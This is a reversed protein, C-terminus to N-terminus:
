RSTTQVGTTTILVRQSAGTRRLTLAVEWTELQSEIRGVPTDNLFEFSVTLLLIPGNTRISWTHASKEHDRADMISAGSFEREVYSTVAGIAERM